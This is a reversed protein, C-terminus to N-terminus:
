KNGVPRKRRWLWRRHSWTKKMAAMVPNLQRGRSRGTDGWASPDLKYASFFHVLKDVDDTDINFEIFQGPKDAMFQRVDALHADWDRRWYEKCEEETRFGNTAMVRRIYDGHGHKVRSKIWDERNRTNLLLITDPYDHLIERFRKFIEVTRRDSQYVLDSYFVYGELGSFAKKGDALNKEILLALHRRFGFRPKTNYHVARHGSHEFLQALSRTACKNFGVQVVKPLSKNQQESM